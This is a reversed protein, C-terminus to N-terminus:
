EGRGGSALFRALHLLNVFREFELHQLFKAYFKELAGEKQKGLREPDELWDLLRKKETESGPKIHEAQHNEVIQTAVKLARERQEEDTAGGVKLYAMMLRVLEELKLAQLLNGLENALKEAAERRKKQEETRLHRELLRTIEAKQAQLPLGALAREESLQYVFRDSLTNRRREDDRRLNDVLGKLTELVDFTEKEDKMVRWKAGAVVREGSRKLLHVAFADRGLGEKADEKLAAEHAEEVVHSFPHTHHAIVVGASTTAKGGMTLLLRGHQEVFGNREGSFKSRLERLVDLLVELPVFALVDDGGAYILKGLHGEEVVQKAVQLAFNKGATGIAM